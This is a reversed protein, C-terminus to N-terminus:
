RGTWGQQQAYMRDPIFRMARWVTKGRHRIEQIFGEMLSLKIKTILLYSKDSKFQENGFFFNGQIRFKNEM